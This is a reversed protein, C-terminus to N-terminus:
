GIAIIAICEHTYTYKRSKKVSIIILFADYFNCPKEASGGVENCNLHGM